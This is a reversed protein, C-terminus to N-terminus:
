TKHGKGLISFGFPALEFVFQDDSRHLIQSGDSILDRMRLDTQSDIDFRSSLQWAPITVEKRTGTLNAICLFPSDEGEAHRMLALIGLDGSDVPSVNEVRLSPHQRRLTNLLQVTRIPALNSRLADEFVRAPIPGRQIERIDTCTKEPLHLGLEAFIQHRKKAAVLLHTRDNAWMLELGYYLLPVGPTVYLCFIAAAVREENHDLGDAYRCGVSLNNRFPEGGRSRLYQLIWTRVELRYFGMYIEDHHELANLWGSNGPLKPTRFIKQWLPAVSQFHTAERLAANMEFSILLDGESSTPMGCVKAPTGAYKAAREFSQVVEPILVSRPCVHRMFTKLLRQVLHTEELGDSSTGPKKIWHAVADTRKGLFGQNLENGIVNLLEELVDPNRLNLDVQFPHFERHFVYTSGRIEAWLTHTRDVDPFVCVKETITGDPDRYRCVIDGDRDFEAIKERGNRLLFYNIFKEEGALARRFWDHETSVHNFIAESSLRFGLRLAEDMFNTLSEEGGLDDRVRYASVDYGCDGMPSQYHPLLHLNRIGLECLYPLMSRCDDFTAHAGPGSSRTGFFQVYLCYWPEKFWDVPMEEDRQVLEAPREQRFKLVLKFFVSFIRRWQSPHIGECLTRVARIDQLTTVGGMLARIASPLFEDETLEAIWDLVQEQFEKWQSASRVEEVDRALRHSSKLEEVRKLLRAIEETVSTSGDEEYESM